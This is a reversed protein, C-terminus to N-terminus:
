LRLAAAVSSLIRASRNPLNPRVSKEADNTIECAMAQAQENVSSRNPKVNMNTNENLNANISDNPM